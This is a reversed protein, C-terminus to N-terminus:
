KYIMEPFTSYDVLTPCFLGRLVGCGRWVITHTLNRTSSHPQAPYIPSFDAQQGLAGPTVDNRM